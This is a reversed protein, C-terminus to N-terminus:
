YCFTENWYGLLFTGDGRESTEYGLVALGRAFAAQLAEANRAQLQEAKVHDVSSTKWAYIEAPVIVRQEVQIEPAEGRLTRQVHDSRLWWEAYIRDTPLGGHLPSSSAGYFNPKYRRSIAGLKAFNLHSNKIELPDFTWEMLAFGRGLADERQALKLRRGVGANRWAARVALHHSHLYAQGNRVGPLAMAYGVQEDGDFAGLVQGGIRAALLFVKQSMRDSAEYGWVEDQLAVCADFQALGTLPEIRITPRSVEDGGSERAVM